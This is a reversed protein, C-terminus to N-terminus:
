QNLFLEFEFEHELPIGDIGKEPVGKKLRRVVELSGIHVAKLAFGFRQYFRIAHTNDNTTVLWVRQCHKQRAAEVVQNILATGIGRNECLSYLAAIECSRDEIRYLIAGMAEGEEMAVFGPLASTDYLNGLSVMMPGGWEERIYADVEKRNQDTLSVINM